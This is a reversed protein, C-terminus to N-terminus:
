WELYVELWEWLRRELGTVSLKQNTKPRRDKTHMCQGQHESKREGETRELLGM